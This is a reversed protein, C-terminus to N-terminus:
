NDQHAEASQFVKGDSSTKCIGTKMDTGDKFRWRVILANGRREFSVANEPIDVPKSDLRPKLVANCTKFAAQEATTRDVIGNSCGIGPLCLSILMASRIFPGKRRETNTSRVACRRTPGISDVAREPATQLSDLPKTM